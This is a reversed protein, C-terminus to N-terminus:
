IIREFDVTLVYKKYYKFDKSDSDVVEDIFCNVDYAPFNQKEISEKLIIVYSSSRTEFKIENLLHNNKTKKYLNFFGIVENLDKELNM